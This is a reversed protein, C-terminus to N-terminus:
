GADVGQTQLMKFIEDVEDKTEIILNQGSGGAFVLWVTDTKSSIQIAYTPSSGAANFPISISGHDLSKQATRVMVISSTQSLNKRANERRPRALTAYRLQAEDLNITLLGVQNANITRKRILSDFHVIAEVDRQFQTARYPRNFGITVVAVVIAMLTLVVMLEILSFAKRQM